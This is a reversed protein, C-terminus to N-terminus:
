PNRFGYTYIEDRGKGNVFPNDKPIGYPKDASTTNVDIRLINGLLNHTVDQGNGGANAKYWDDVHGPGVDDAGGGDGISLYLYNDPGFALTGGEHNFQPHNIGLLMRESSMDAKNPNSSVKFESLVALNDWEITGGKRPPANYYIYFKGNNKFNPHFALGLLGREDYGPMLSVMKSSIDIFPTSSKSGDPFIIWIKGIQDVVFLRKTGDNPEVVTVPSVFNGAVLKLDYSGSIASSQDNATAKNANFEQKKCSQFFLLCATLFTFVTFLPQSLSQISKVSGTARAYSKKKM